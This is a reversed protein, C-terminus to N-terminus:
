EPRPPATSERVTLTPTLVMHDSATRGQDLRAAAAAVALEAMRSVDQRVSTLRLFPLRAIPSDDYGVVSVEDPVLHGARTLTAMLGRACLDNGAVVATPLAGRDLLARAAVGGSDEDYAGPVVEARAGLGHDRMAALYGERREPAGPLGGGDVHVIDRHGLAVLHDVALRAGAVDDTRVSDTNVAGSRQGIEVVPVRSAVQALDEPAQASLGILVLAECRLGVLDDIARRETRTAMLASLVVSYEQLAAAPYLAGVLDTEMPHAMSFLVGLQRSRARRLLQAATDARYGLEEAARLVRERTRASPGPRDGLVLSVLQRSVGLHAAVDAM